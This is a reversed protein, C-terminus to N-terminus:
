FYYIIGQRSPRVIIRMVYTGEYYKRRIYKKSKLEAMTGDYTLWRDEFPDILYPNAIIPVFNVIVSGEELLPHFSLCFNNILQSFEKKM